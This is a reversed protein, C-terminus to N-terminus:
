DKFNDLFNLEYNHPLDDAQPKYSTMNPLEPQVSRQFKFTHQETIYSGVMVEKSNATDISVDSPNTGGWLDGGIPHAGLIEEVLRIPRSLQRTAELGHAGISASRSSATSDEPTTTDGDHAGVTGTINNDNDESKPGDGKKGNRNGKKGKRQHAYNKNPYQTSLYRAMAKITPPYVTINGQSYALRLDKKANDNKLNILFIISKTLDDGRDEWVLQDALPMAYYTIWDLALKESQAIKDNSRNRKPVKRGSGKRCRVQDQGRKQFM